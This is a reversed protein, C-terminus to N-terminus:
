LIDHLRPWTGKVTAQFKESSALIKTIKSTQRKTDFVQRQGEYHIDLAQVQNIRVHRFVFLNRGFKVSGIVRARICAGNKNQM